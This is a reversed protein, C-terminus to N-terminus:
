PRRWRRMTFGGGVLQHAATFGDPVPPTKPATQGGTLPSTTLCYDDVVESKLLHAALVPGGECLVRTLGRLALESLMAQPEVSASGAYIIRQQWHASLRASAPSGDTTVIWTSEPDLSPPIDGSQTVIALDVGPRLGLLRRTRVLPESLTISRYREARATQAGVVVVDAQSRLTRLIRLDEPGNLSRSSGDPGAAKGDASEIMGLRVTHPLQPYLLALESEAADPAYVATRPATMTLTGVGPAKMGRQPPSQPDSGHNESM